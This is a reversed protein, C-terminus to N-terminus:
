TYVTSGRNKGGLQQRARELKQAISRREEVPLGATDLSKQAEEIDRKATQQSNYRREISGMRDPNEVLNLGESGPGMDVSGSSRYNDDMRTGSMAPNARIQARASSNADDRKRDMANGIRNQMYYGGAIATAPGLITGGMAEGFTSSAAQESAPAAAAAGGAIM